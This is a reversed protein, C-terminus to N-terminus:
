VARTALGTAFSTSRRRITITRNASRLLPRCNSLTMQQCITRVNAAMGSVRNLTINEIMIRMARHHTSLAVFQIVGQEVDNLHMLKALLRTNVFLESKSTPPSKNFDALRKKLESHIFKQPHPTKQLTIGILERAEEAYDSSTLQRLYKENSLCLKTLWLAAHADYECAYLGTQEPQADM